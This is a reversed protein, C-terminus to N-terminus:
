GFLMQHSTCIILSSKIYNEGNGTVEDRKSWFIRRLVRNKFMRLRPEERFTLSWTVCGLFLFPM